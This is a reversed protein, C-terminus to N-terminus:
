GLGLFSNRTFFFPLLATSNRIYILTLLNCASIVASLQPQITLNKIIQKRLNIFKIFQM